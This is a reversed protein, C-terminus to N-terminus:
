WGLQMLPSETQETSAFPQLMQVQWLRSPESVAGSKKTGPVPAGAGGMFRQLDGTGDGRVTL